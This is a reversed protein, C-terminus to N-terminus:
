VRGEAKSLRRQLEARLEAGAGRLPSVWGSGESFNSDTRALSRLGGESLSSAMRTLSRRGDCGASDSEDNLGRATSCKSDAVSRHSLICELSTVYKEQGLGLENPMSNSRLMTRPTLNLPPVKARRLTQPQPEAGNVPPVQHVDKGLADGNYNRPPVQHVDNGLVVCNYNRPPVQQVDNGLAAVGNYHLPTMQIPHVPLVAYGRDQLQVTCIDRFHPGQLLETLKSHGLATESLEMQYLSRFLRKINSLPVQEAGRLAASALIERVKLRATDLDAVQFHLSGDRSTLVPPDVVPRNQQACRCKLMSTSRDYPVIAGNFYGLLKRKSIALQTIHCIQGLSYGELFPLQRGALAKASAYRGGALDSTTGLSKFYHEAATWFEQSYNDTPDYIDVFDPERDLLVASWEGWDAPEVRLHRSAECLARLKGADCGQNNNDGHEVLLEAQAEQAHEVLRKRLIRSYPRLGDNYLSVVARLVEIENPVSLDAAAIVCPVPKQMIPGALPGKAPATARRRLVRGGRAM